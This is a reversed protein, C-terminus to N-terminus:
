EAKDLIVFSPLGPVNFYDLVSKVQPAEMDEAQFKVVHFKELETKVAPAQFTTRDMALCNKCWSAWFDILVPKGDASARQLTETLRAVEQQPESDASSALPLLTYGVYGYWGAAALIIVGFVMKVKNMWAGPKPLVAFGAGALPWPLAMALGLVFPLLLGFWNGADYINSALLLVSIVVPAVCAGALLAAVVGMAFATLLAGMRLKKPDLGGSWRSFDISFRDFMALALVVFIGAIVFNFAPSSNLAGFRAKTLVVVLGLGGYALAMGLGYAAGRRFGTWRRGDAGAGIIALNVPIMPLVCPTLNLGLGGLVILALLAWFSQDVPLGDAPGALFDLFESENLLGSKQRAITFQELEAALPAPLAAVAPLTEPQNEAAPQDTPTLTQRRPPFCVAPQGDAADRCGQYRVEISLAAGEPPADFLWVAEGAPYIAATEQLTTDFHEEPSPSQQSTLRAGDAAATVETRDAYLYCSPAITAVVAVAGERREANWVFPEEGCLGFGGLLVTLLLAFIRVRGMM